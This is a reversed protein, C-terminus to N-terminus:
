PKRKVVIIGAETKEYVLGNMVCIIKLMQELDDKESFTGTFYMEGVNVASLDVQVDKVESIEDFVESLPTGEFDLYGIPMEQNEIKTPTTATKEKPKKLKGFLLKKVAFRGVDIALEEGPVLYQDEMKFTSERSSKVVVKGTLLKIELGNNSRADVIFSTGLAMTSYGKATVVFPRITDRAVDFKAGGTLTLYRAEAGYDALYGIKSGPYLTVQSGDALSYMKSLDTTNHIFSTDLVVMSVSEAVHFHKKDRNYGGLWFLMAGILLVSAAAMWKYWMPRTKTSLHIGSREHIAQLYAQYDDTRHLQEDDTREGFEDEMSDKLQQEGSNLESLLERRHTDSLKGQWFDQIRTKLRDNM